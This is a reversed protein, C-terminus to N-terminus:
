ITWYEEQSEEMPLKSDEPIYRWTTENSHVPMESTHVAEMMVRIITATHVESVDTWELSVVLRLM